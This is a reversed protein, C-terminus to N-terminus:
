KVWQSIYVIATNSVFFQGKCKPERRTIVFKSWGFTDLMINGKTVVEYKKTIPNRLTIMYSETRKTIEKTKTDYIIGNEDMLYLGEFGKIDKM